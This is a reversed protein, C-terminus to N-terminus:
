ATRHRGRRARAVVCGPQHGHYWPHEWEYALTESHFGNVAAYAMQWGSIFSPLSWAAALKALFSASITCTRWSLSRASVCRPPSSSSPAVLPRARASARRQRGLAHLGADPDGRLSQRSTSMECAIRHGTSMHQYGSHITPCPPMEIYVPEVYGELLRFMPTDRMAAWDEPHTAILFKSRRSPQLAPINRPSLTSALCLDLFYNRFREGWLVVIFYFPRDFAAPSFIASQADASM